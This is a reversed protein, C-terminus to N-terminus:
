VYIFYLFVIIKLLIFSNIFLKNELLFVVVVVQGFRSGLSDPNGVGVLVGIEVLLTEFISVSFLGVEIISLIGDGVGVNFLFLLSEVGIFGALFFDALFFDALFLLFFHYTKLIKAFCFLM